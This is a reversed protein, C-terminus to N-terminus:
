HPPHRVHAVQQFQWRDSITVILLVLIKHRCKEIDVCIAAVFASRFLHYARQIRM